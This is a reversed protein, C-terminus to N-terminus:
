RCSEFNNDAPNLIFPNSLRRNVRHTDWAAVLVLVTGLSFEANEDVVHALASYYM